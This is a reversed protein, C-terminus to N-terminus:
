FNHQQHRSGHFKNQLAKEFEFVPVEEDLSLRCDTNRDVPSFSSCLFDRIGLIEQNEEHLIIELIFQQNNQFLTDAYSVIRFLKSQHM